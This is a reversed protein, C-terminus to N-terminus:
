SSQEAAPWATRWKRLFGAVREEASKILVLSREQVRQLERATLAWMQRAVHPTGLIM